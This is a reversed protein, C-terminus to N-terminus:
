LVQVCMFLISCLHNITVFSVMGLCMDMSRSIWKWSTWSVRYYYLVIFTDFKLVYSVMKRIQRYNGYFLETSPGQIDYKSLVCYALKWRFCVVSSQRITLHIDIWVKYIACITISRYYVLFSRSVWDHSTAVIRM